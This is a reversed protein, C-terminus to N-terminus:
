DDYGEPETEDSELEVKQGTLRAQQNPQCSKGMTDPVIEYGNALQSDTAQKAQRM